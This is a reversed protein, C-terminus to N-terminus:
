RKFDDGGGGRPSVYQIVQSYFCFYVYVYVNFYSWRLSAAGEFDGM